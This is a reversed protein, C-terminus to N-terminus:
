VALRAARFRPLTTKCWHFAKLFLQHDRFFFLSGWAQAPTSALNTAMRIFAEHTSRFIIVNWYYGRERLGNILEPVIIAGAEPNVQSDPAVEPSGFRSQIVPPQFRDIAEVIAPDLSNRGINLFDISNPSRQAPLVSTLTNPPEGHHLEFGIESLVQSSEDPKSGVDLLTRGPLFNFLLGALEAEPQNNSFNGTWYWPEVRNTYWTLFSKLNTLEDHTRASKAEAKVSSEEIRASLAEIRGATEAIRATTEAIRATTTEVSASRAELAALKSELQYIRELRELAVQSNFRIADIGLARQSASSIQEKIKQVISM